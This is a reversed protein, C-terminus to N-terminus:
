SRLDAFYFPRPKYRGVPADPQAQHARVLRQLAVLAAQVTMHFFFFVSDQSAGEDSSGTVSSAACTTVNDPTMAAETASDSEPVEKATCLDGSIEGAAAASAVAM